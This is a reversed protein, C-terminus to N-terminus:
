YGHPSCWHVDRQWARGHGTLYDAQFNGSTGGHPEYREFEVSEDDSSALEASGAVNATALSTYTDEGRAMRRRWDYEDYASLGASAATGLGQVPPSSIRPESLTDINAARPSLYCPSPKSQNQFVPSPRRANAGDCKGSVFAPVNWGGTGQSQEPPPARTLSGRRAAALEEYIRQAASTGTVWLEESNRSPEATAHVDRM